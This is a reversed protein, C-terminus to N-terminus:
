KTAARDKATAAKLAALDAADQEARTLRRSLKPVEPKPTTRTTGPGSSAERRGNGPVPKAQVGAATAPEGEEPTLLELRKAEKREYAAKAFKDFADAVDDFSLVEGNALALKQTEAAKAQIEHKEYMFNLYPYKKPANTVNYVFGNVQQALATERQKAAQEEREKKERERDAAIQKELAERKAREEAVERKTDEIAAEPTNKKVYGTVTDDAKRGHKEAWSIPDKLAEEREKELQAAKAEAASHKALVGDLQAKMEAIQKETGAQLEKRFQRLRFGERRLSALDKAKPPAAGEAPKDKGGVPAASDAGAQAAPSSSAAPPNAAPAPKAVDPTPQAAPQTM